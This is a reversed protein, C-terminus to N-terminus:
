NPPSVTQGSLFLGNDTKPAAKAAAAGSKKKKEAQPAKLDIGRPTIADSRPLSGTILRDEKKFTEELVPAGILPPTFAPATSARTIPEIAERAVAQGLMGTPTLASPSSAIAAAPATAATQPKREHTFDYIAALGMAGFIGLALLFAGADHGREGKTKSRKRRASPARGKRM